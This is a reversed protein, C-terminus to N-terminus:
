WLLMLVTARDLKQEAVGLEERDAERRDESAGGVKRQEADESETRRQIRSCQKSWYLVPVHVHLQVTYQTVM